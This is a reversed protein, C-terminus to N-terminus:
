STHKIKTATLEFKGSQTVVNRTEIFFKGSEDYVTDYGSGDKLIVKREQVEITATPFQQKLISRIKRVTVKIKTMTSSKFLHSFFFM